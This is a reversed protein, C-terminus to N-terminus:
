ATMGKIINQISFYDKELQKVRNIVTGLDEMTKHAVGGQSFENKKEDYSDKRLIYSPHFIPIMDYELTFEKKNVGGKRPFIRGPISVGNREGAVRVDPHPTSFLNGHETEISWSRGALTELAVKGTAVIVLPDVLYIMEYLRALCADKESSLPNRDESPRCIVINDLFVNERSLGSSGLMATLLKGSRGVFPRGEKDEDEGPGEGIFMIKADLNGEGFAM